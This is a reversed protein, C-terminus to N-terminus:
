FDYEIVKENDIADIIIDYGINRIVHNENLLVGFLSILVNNDNNPRKLPDILDDEFSDFKKLKYKKEEDMFNKLTVTKGIYVSLEKLKAELEKKIM